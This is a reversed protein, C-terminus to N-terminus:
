KLSIYRRIVNETSALSSPDLQDCHRLLLLVELLFRHERSANSKEGIGPKKPWESRYRILGEIGSACVALMFERATRPGDVPWHKCPAERLLKAIDLVPLFRRGDTDRSDDM